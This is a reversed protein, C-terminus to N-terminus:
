SKVIVRWALELLIRLSLFLLFVSSLLPIMIASVKGVIMVLSGFPIQVDVITVKTPPTPKANLIVHEAAYVTSAASRTTVPPPQPPCINSM